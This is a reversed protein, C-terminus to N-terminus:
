SQEIRSSYFTNINPVVSNLSPYVVAITGQTPVTGTPAVSGNDTFNLTGSGVTALLGMAGGTIRGWVKYNTVNPVATWTLDVKNQVGTLTVTSWNAPASEGGLTSVLSIGYDYAQGVVLTGGGVTGGVLTPAPVNLNSVIVDTAPTKIIMYDINSDSDKIVGDIDSRYIDLGIIGQRPAFLAQVAAIANAKVNVLNSFTKCYIDVAVTVVNPIPDLRFVRPAYMTKNQYWAVFDTWAAADFPSQTLLCVKILNMWTLSTPNVERQAFTLADLVGPYQLPMRKYQAPTVAADFAGFLAPTVNKYILPNPQDGGASPTGSAAGGITTDAALSIQSGNVLINNGDAGQTIAYTIACADNTAPRTGFATNGFLMIMRGDSLTLNQVGPLGQRTWLGATTVPISIANVTLFVDTDSVVFGKEPTVYAQFDTGAGRLTIQVIKGQYLTVNQPTQNLTIISRNFWFTGAGTFQSNVPISVTGIPCTMSVTIKAPAKRTLRVGMYNSSAYLSRKNKATEPFVEQFSSEISYQDYAGVASIYDILTQGTSSVVRDKWSDYGTLATQMQDVIGSQDPQVTSLVITVM